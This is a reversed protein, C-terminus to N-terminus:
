VLSGAYDGDAGSQESPCREKLEEIADLGDGGASEATEAIRVDGHEDIESTVPQEAQGDAVDEAEM